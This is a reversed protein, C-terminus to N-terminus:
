VETTVNASKSRVQRQRIKLPFFALNKKKEFNQITLFPFPYQKVYPELVIAPIISITIMAMCLTSSHLWTSYLHAM